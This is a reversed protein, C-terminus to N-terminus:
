LPTQPASGKSSRLNRMSSRMTRRWVEEGTRGGEGEGAAQHGKGPSREGGQRRAWSEEREELTVSANTRTRQSSRGCGGMDKRPVCVGDLLETPTRGGAHSPVYRVAPPAPFLRASWNNPAAPCRSSTTDRSSRVPLLAASSESSATPRLLKHESREASAGAGECGGLGLPISKRQRGGKGRMSAMGCTTRTWDCAARVRAEDECTTNSASRLRSLNTGCGEPIDHTEVEHRRRMGM